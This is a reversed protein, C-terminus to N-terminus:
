SEELYKFNILPNPLQSITSDLSCASNCSEHLLTTSFYSKGQLEQIAPQHLLEIKIKWKKKQIQEM